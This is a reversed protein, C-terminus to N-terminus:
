PTSSGAGMEIRAAIAEIVYEYGRRNFHCCADVYIDGPEGRFVQTLDAFPLGDRALEEGARILEPYGAEALERYLYGPRGYAESLELRSLAKSGGVYQNPQLFHYYEIGNAESLRAMQRSGEVWLRTLEARLAGTGGEYPPGSVRYAGASGLRRSLEQELGRIELVRRRLMIEALVLVFRSRGWVPHEALAQWRRGSAQFEGIRAMPAVTAEDLVAHAYLQWRRPYAPHVGAKQNELEPLVIENFGDLNVVVDFRAGLSLLWALALLQQPQKFGRMGLNVVEVERGAFRGEGLVEGLRESPLGMAVSGGFVGVVVADPAVQRPDPGRFGLANIGNQMEPDFVFGLYPHLTNLTAPGEGALDPAGPIEHGAIRARLEGPQAGQGTRQEYVLGAGLELAAVALALAVLLLLGRRAGGAFTRIRTM